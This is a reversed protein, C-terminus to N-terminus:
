LEAKEKAVREDCVFHDIMDDRKAEGNCAKCTLLVHKCNHQWHGLLDEAGFMGCDGIPCVYLIKGKCQTKHSRFQSYKFTEPCIQCNFMMENLISVIKISPKSTLAETSCLPCKKRGNFVIKQANKAASQKVNIASSWRHISWLTAFEVPSNLLQIKIQPM